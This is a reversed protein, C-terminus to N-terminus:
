IKGDSHSTNPYVPCEGSSMEPTALPQKRGIAAMATLSSKDIREFRMILIRACNHDNKPLWLYFLFYRSAGV